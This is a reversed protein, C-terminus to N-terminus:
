RGFGQTASAATHYAEDCAHTPTAKIRGRRSQVKAGYGTM